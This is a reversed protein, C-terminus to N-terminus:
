KKEAELRTDYHYSTENSSRAKSQVV